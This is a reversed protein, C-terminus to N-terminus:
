NKTEKNDSRLEKVLQHLILPWIQVSGRGMHTANFLQGPPESQSESQVLDFGSFSYRRQVLSSKQMM